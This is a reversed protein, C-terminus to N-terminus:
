SAIMKRLRQTIVQMINISIAPNERLTLLFDRRRIFLLRSNRTTRASASRPETDIISLEGICSGPGLRALTKGRTFVEVEGEILIFLEDGMGGENIITRDRACELEGTIQAIHFIEDMKLERFLTNEKLFVIKEVLSLMEREEKNPKGTTERMQRALEAVCARLAPALSPVFHAALTALARAMDVASAILGGGTPDPKMEDRELIAIARRASKGSSEIYELIYNNLDRDKLLINSEYVEEMNVGTFVALCKLVLHKHLERLDDFAATILMVARTELLDAPLSAVFADRLRSLYVTKDIEYNLFAEMARAPKVDLSMMYNLYNSKQTFSRTELLRRLLLDRTKEDFQFFAIMHEFPISARYDLLLARDTETLSEARALFAALEEFPAYRYRFLVRRAQERSMVDAHRTLLPLFLLHRTAAALRILAPLCYAPPLAHSLIVFEVPEMSGSLVGGGIEALADLARTDADPADPADGSPRFLLLDRACRESSLVPKYAALLKERQVYPLDRVHGLALSRVLPDPDALAEIVISATGEFRAEGLLDFVQIKGQRSLAGFHPALHQLLDLSPAAHFFAELVPLAHTGAIGHKVLSEYDAYEHHRQVQTTELSLRRKLTNRYARNQLFTLAILVAGTGLALVYGQTEPLKKYILLLFGGSAVMGLPSVIGGIFSKVEAMRDRPSAAMIINFVPVRFLLSMNKRFFRLLVGAIIGPSAVTLAMFAIFSGPYMYNAKQIGMRKIIRSVLFLQLMLTLFDASLTYVSLFSALEQKTAFSTNFIHAFYYESIQNVISMMFVMLVSWAFIPSSYSLRIKRIMKEVFRIDPLLERMGSSPAPGSANPRGRLLFVPIIM